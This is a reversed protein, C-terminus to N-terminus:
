DIVLLLTLYSLRNVPQGSVALLDFGAVRVSYSQTEDEEQAVFDNANSSWTEVQIGSAFEFDPCYPLFLFYLNVDEDTMQVFALISSVVALITDDVLWDRAKGGRIVAALFDIIPCLLQPLEIAEDESTNPASESAALYFTRFAPYLARLHHLSSAM